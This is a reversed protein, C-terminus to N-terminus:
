TLHENAVETDCKQIGPNWSPSLGRHGLVSASPTVSGSDPGEASGGLLFVKISPVFDGPAM